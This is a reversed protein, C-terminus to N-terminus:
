DQSLADPGLIELFGLIEGKRVKESLEFNQLEAPAAAVSEVVYRPKIQQGSPDQTQTKNYAEIAVRLASVVDTDGVRDVVVFKKDHTDVVDKVLWQILISGGMLLPMILLGIIFTKTRVAALYERRAIIYMKFM